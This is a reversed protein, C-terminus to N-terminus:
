DNKKPPPVPLLLLEVEDYDFDCDDKTKLNLKAIKYGASALAEILQIMKEKPM